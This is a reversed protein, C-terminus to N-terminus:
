HLRRGGVADGGVVHSRPPGAPACRGGSRVTAATALLALVLLFLLGGFMMSDLTSRDRTDALPGSHSLPSM